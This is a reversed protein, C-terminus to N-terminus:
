GVVERIKLILFHSPTALPCFLRNSRKFNTKKRENPYYACFPSNAYHEHRCNVCKRPLQNGQAIKPASGARARLVPLAAARQSLRAGQAQDQCPQGSKRLLMEAM